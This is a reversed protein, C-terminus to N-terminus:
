SVSKYIKYVIYLGVGVGVLTVLGRTAPPLNMYSKKLFGTASSGGGSPAPASPPTITPTAM